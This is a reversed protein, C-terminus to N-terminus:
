RRLGAEVEAWCAAFAEAVGAPSRTELDAPLVVVPLEHAGRAAAATRAAPAFPETVLVV